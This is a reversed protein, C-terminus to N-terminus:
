LEASRRLMEETMGKRLVCLRRFQAQLDSKMGGDLWAIMQGFCECKYFHIIIENDSEKSPANPFVTDWYTSVAEGCLDLLYKELIDRSLSNYIHYAARKNKIVFSIVVEVCEEFSEITPHAQIISEIEEKIMGELLSPIDAFHYYFSNRNIGCDEVIDKVTIKNLPRENLLKMFSAKIARETFNSM